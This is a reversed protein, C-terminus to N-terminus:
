RCGDSAARYRELRSATAAQRSLRAVCDRFEGLSTDGKLVNCCSCCARAEVDYGEAADVADAGSVTMLMM